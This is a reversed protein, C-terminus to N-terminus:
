YERQRAFLLRLIYPHKSHQRVEGICIKIDRIGVNLKAAMQMKYSRQFRKFTEGKSAGGLKVTIVMRRPSKHKMEIFWGYM